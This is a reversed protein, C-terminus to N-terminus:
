AIYRTNNDLAIDNNQELTSTFYWNLVDHIERYTDANTATFGVRVWEPLIAKLDVYSSIIYSTQDSPYLLSATLTKTSAEYRKEVNAVVGGYRANWIVTKESTLSNVDIGIHQYAPDWSNERYCHHNSVGRDCNFSIDDFLNVKSM